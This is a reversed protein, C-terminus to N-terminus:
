IRLLTDPSLHPPVPISDRQMAPALERFRHVQLRSLSDCISNTSGSVHFAKILINNKLCTLVFFRLLKLCSNNRKVTQSNIISVLAENDTHINLNLNALKHKWVNLAVVIPYFELTTIDTGKLGEPWAGYFWERGLTAGYGKSQAADSYLNLASSAIWQDSMFFNKGNFESLFELWMGLDDKVEASLKVTAYKNSLGVSLNYLRRLFCRGPYVVTCCFNLLGSLEQISKLSIRDKTLTEKIANISKAIKDDPLRAIMYRTDLEIGAFPLVQSPGETKEVAIPIGCM